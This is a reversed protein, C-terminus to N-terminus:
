GMAHGALEPELDVPVHLDVARAAPAPTVRDLNPRGVAVACELHRANAEAEGAPEEGQAPGAGIPRADQEIPRRGPEDGALHEQRAGRRKLPEDGPHPGAGGLPQPPAQRDTDRGLLAQAQFPEDGRRLATSPLAWEVSQAVAGHQRATPLEGAGHAAEGFHLVQGLIQRPGIAQWARAHEREGAESAGGFRM